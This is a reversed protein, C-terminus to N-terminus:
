LIRIPIRRLSDLNLTIWNIHLENHFDRPYELGYPFVLLVFITPRPDSPPTRAPSRARARGFKEGRARTRVKRRAPFINRSAQQQHLLKLPCSSVVASCRAESSPLTLNTFIRPHAPPYHLHRLPPSARVSGRPSDWCCRRRPLLDRPNDNTRGSERGAYKARQQHSFSVEVDSPTSM